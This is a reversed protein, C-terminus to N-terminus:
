EIQVRTNANGAEIQTLKTNTDNLQQILEAYGIEKETIFTKLHPNELQADCLAKRWQSVGRSMSEEESEDDLDTPSGVFGQRVNQGEAFSGTALASGDTGFTRERM